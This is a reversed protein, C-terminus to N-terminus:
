SILAFVLPDDEIEDPLLRELREEPAENALLADLLEAFLDLDSVGREAGGAPYVQEENLTVDCWIPRWVEFDDATLVRARLSVLQGFRDLVEPPNGKGGRRNRFCKLLAATWLSRIRRLEPYPGVLRRVGIRLAKHVNSRETGVIRGIEAFGLGRCYWLIVEAQRNTLERQEMRATLSQYGRWEPPLSSALFKGSYSM